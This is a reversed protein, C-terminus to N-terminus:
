PQSGSSITEAVIQGNEIEVEKGEKILTECESCIFVEHAHDTPGVTIVKGCGRITNIYCLECGVSM